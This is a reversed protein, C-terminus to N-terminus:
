SRSARSSRTARAACIELVIDGKHTSRTEFNSGCACKVNITNYSPHIGQKPMTRPEKTPRAPKRNAQLRTVEGDCRLAQRAVPEGCSYAEFM